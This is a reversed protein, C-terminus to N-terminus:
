KKKKKKKRSTRTVKVKWGGNDKEKGGSSKRVASATAVAQSAAAAVAAEPDKEPLAPFDVNNFKYPSQFSGDKQVGWSEGDPHERLVQLTEEPLSRLIKQAGKETGGCAEYEEWSLAHKPDGMKQEGLLIKLRQLERMHREITSPLEGGAEAVADCVLKAWTAPTYTKVPAFKEMFLMMTLAGRAENPDGKGKMSQDFKYAYRADQVQRALVHQLEDLASSMAASKNAAHRIRQVFQFTKVVFFFFVRVLCGHGVVTCVVGARVVTCVVTVLTQRSPGSVSFSLCLRHGNLDDSKAIPM